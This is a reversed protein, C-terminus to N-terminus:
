EGLTCSKIATTLDEEYLTLTKNIDNYRYYVGDLFFLKDENIEIDERRIDAGTETNYLYVDGVDYVMYEIYKGVKELRVSNKAHEKIEKTKFNYSCLSFVENSYESFWLVDGDLVGDYIKMGGLDVPSHTGSEMDLKQLRYLDDIYYIENDVYYVSGMRPGTGVVTYKIEFDADLIYMYSCNDLALYDDGLAYVRRIRNDNHESDIGEPLANKFVTKENEECLYLRDQAIGILKGNFLCYRVRAKCKEDFPTHGCDPIDCFVSLTNTQQDYKKIPTAGGLSFYINNDDYILFDEAKLEGEGGFYNETAHGGSNPSIDPEGLSIMNKALVFVGFVAAATAAVSAIVTKWVTRRSKPAAYVVMGERAEQQLALLESAKEIYKDEMGNLMQFFEENKM